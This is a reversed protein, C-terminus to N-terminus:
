HKVSEFKNMIAQKLGCLRSLNCHKSLNYKWSENPICIKGFKDCVYRRIFPILYDKGSVIQLLTDMNYPFKASLNRLEEEYNNETLYQPILRKKINGIEKEVKDTQIQANGNNYMDFNGLTFFGRYKKEISMNFFLDIVPHLISEFMHEYNLKQKIEMMDFKAYIDLVFSEISCKDIVYNEICYSNLVFLSEIASKPSFIVYIDGDIIYFGKPDNKEKCNNYVTDCCGLPYIDNIICDTDALLRKFLQVYFNKDKNEDETYINISNRYQTFVSILSKSEDSYQLEM